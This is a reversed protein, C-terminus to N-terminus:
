GKKEIFVDVLKNFEKETLSVNLTHNIGQQLVTNNNNTYVNRDELQLIDQL